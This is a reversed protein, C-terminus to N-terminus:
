NRKKAHYAKAEDRTVGGSSDADAAGFVITIYEDVEAKSVTGDGNKDMRKLIGQKRREVIRQLWADLEASSVSGDGNTDLRMFRRESPPMLEDLQLQNDHNKDLRNFVKKSQPMGPVQASAASVLSVCLATAAALIAFTKMM